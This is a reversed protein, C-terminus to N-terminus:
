EFDAPLFIDEAVKHEYKDSFCIDKVSCSKARKCDIISCIKQPPNNTRMSEQLQKARSKIRNVIDWDISVVHECTDGTDKNFYFVRAARYGFLWMYINVQVRHSDGVANKFSQYSYNNSTKMELIFYENNHYLFGDCSGGIGTEQDLAFEEMYEFRTGFCKQCVSPKLYRKIGAVENPIHECKLCKWKGIVKGADGLVEDRFWSEFVRGHKFIVNTKPSIKDKRVLEEKSCIFEERPCLNYAGSARIVSGVVYPYKDREEGKLVSQLLESKSFLTKQLFDVFLM